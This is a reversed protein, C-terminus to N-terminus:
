SRLYLDIFKGMEVLSIVVDSPLPETRGSLESYARASRGLESIDTVCPLLFGNCMYM